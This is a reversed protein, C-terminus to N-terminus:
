GLRILFGGPAFTFGFKTERELDHLYDKPYRWFYEALAESPGEGHGPSVPHGNTNGDEVVLYDGPKTVERLNELEALVHTKSHDSDIVFFAPGPFEQRLSQIKCAVIPDATNAQMWEIARHHRAREHIWRLDIDISLLKTAGGRIRILIDALYLASGGQWSGFEVILQPQLRHVIEQYNWLDGVWKAVPVGLYTTKEWVCSDYYWHHFKEAADNPASM